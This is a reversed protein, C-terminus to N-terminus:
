SYEFSKKRMGAEKNIKQSKQRGNAIGRGERGSEAGNAKRKRSQGCNPGIRLIIAYPRAMEVYRLTVSVYSKLIKDIVLLSAIDLMVKLM